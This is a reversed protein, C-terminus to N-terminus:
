FKQYALRISCIYKDRLLVIEEFSNKNELHKRDKRIWMWLVKNNIETTARTPSTPPKVDRWDDFIEM